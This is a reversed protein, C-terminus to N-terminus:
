ALPVFIISKYDIMGSCDQSHKGYRYMNAVAKGILVHAFCFFDICKDCKDCVYLVKHTAESQCQESRKDCILPMDVDVETFSETEIDM